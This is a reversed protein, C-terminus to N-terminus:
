TIHKGGVRALERLIYRQHDHQQILQQMLQYVHEREKSIKSNCKKYLYLKITEVDQDTM